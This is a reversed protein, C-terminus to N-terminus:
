NGVERVPLQQSISFEVKLSARGSGLCVFLKKSPGRFGYHVHATGDPDVKTVAPPNPSVDRIDKADVLSAAASVVKERLASDLAMPVLFDASANIQDCAAEIGSIVSERTVVHEELVPNNRYVRYFFDYASSTRDLPRIMNQHDARIEQPPTTVDCGYTASYYSVV